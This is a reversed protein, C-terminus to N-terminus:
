GNAAPPAQTSNRIVLKPEVMAADQQASSSILPITALRAMLPIPLRITTLPPWLRSAIPNDDFGVVSLDEPISIGLRHAVQYVGAAMEDNTSFIATPRPQQSLLKEGAQIGSEFTYAGHAIFEQPMQLGRSQLAGIFGSLREKVSRHGEPGAIVAIHKHGLDILHLAAEACAARDGSVVRYMAAEVKAAAVSVHPCGAEDLMKLLLPNESIPPLLIVGHPQLREVFERVDPVFQPSHRDCQHVLLEFGSGRLADLIGAQMGVIFTANPNDYIMAILFSKRFALGRAQPNPKFGTKAIVENVRERIDKNVTPVNNIVRSVTKKSVGALRAIDNITIQKSRTSTGAAGSKVQKTKLRSAHTVKTKKAM